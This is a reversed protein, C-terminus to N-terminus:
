LDKRFSAVFEETYPVFRQVNMYHKVACPANEARNLIAKFM